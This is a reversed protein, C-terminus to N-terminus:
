EEEGAPPRPFAEGVLALAEERALRPLRLRVALKVVDSRASRELRMRGEFAEQKDFRVHLTLAEDLHRGLRAGVARGVQAKVQEMAVAVTDPDREVATLKVLPQGFHGGLDKREFKARPAFLRMAREVAEASETAHVFAEVRLDRYGLAAM